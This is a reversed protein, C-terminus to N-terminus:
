PIHLLKSKKIRVAYIKEATVALVDGDSLNEDIQIGVETGDDAIKLIRHRDTEFWEFPIDVVVKSPTESSRHLNGLIKDAIM